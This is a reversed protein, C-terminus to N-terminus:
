SRIDYSHPPHKERVGDGDGEAISNGVFLHHHKRLYALLRQRYPGLDITFTQLEKVFVDCLNEISDRVGPKGVLADNRLLLRILKKVITIGNSEISLIDVINTLRLVPDVTGINQTKLSEAEKPTLCSTSLLISNKTM